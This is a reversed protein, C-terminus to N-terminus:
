GTSRVRKIHPCRSPILSAVNCNYRREVKGGSLFWDGISANEALLLGTAVSSFQAGFDDWKSSTCSPTVGSFSGADVKAIYYTGSCKVIDRRTPNGYYTIGSKYGGRFVSVPSDGKDGKDGEKGDKGTIRVPETWDSM